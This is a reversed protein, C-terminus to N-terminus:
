HRQANKTRRKLKNTDVGVVTVTEEVMDDISKLNTGNGTTEVEAETYHGGGRDGGSGVARHPPGRPGGRDGGGGGGYLIMEVVVDWAM